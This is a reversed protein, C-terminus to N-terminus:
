QGGGPHVMAIISHLLRPIDGWKLTVVLLAVTGVLKLFRLVANRAIKDEELGRVRRALSEVHEDGKELRQDIRDLRYLIEDTRDTTM